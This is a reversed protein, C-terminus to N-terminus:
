VKSTKCSAVQLNKKTRIRSKIRVLEGSAELHPLNTTTKRKTSNFVLSKDFFVDRERDKTLKILEIKILFAVFNAVLNVKVGAM